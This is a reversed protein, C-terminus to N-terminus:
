GFCSRKTPSSNKTTVAPTAFNKINLTNMTKQAEALMADIKAKSAKANAVDKAALDERSTDQPSNKIRAKSREMAEISKAAKESEARLIEANGKEKKANDLAIAVQNLELSLPIRDWGYHATEVAVQHKTRASTITNCLDTYFSQITAKNAIKEYAAKADTEATTLAARFGEAEAAAEDVRQRANDNIAAIIKTKAEKIGRKAAEVASSAKKMEMAVKAQQLQEIKTSESIMKRDLEAQQASLSAWSEQEARHQRERAELQRRQETLLATRVDLSEKAKTSSENSIKMLQETAQKRAISAALEQDLDAMQADTATETKFIQTIGWRRPDCYSEIRAKTNRVADKLQQVAPDANRFARNAIDCANQATSFIKEGPLDTFIGRGMKFDEKLDYTAVRKAQDMEADNAKAAAAKENNLRTISGEKEKISAEHSNKLTTIEADKLKVATEKEGQLRKIETEKEMRENKLSQIEENSTRSIETVRKQLEEAQKETKILTEKVLLNQEKLKEMEDKLAACQTSAEGKEKEIVAIRDNLTRINAEDNKRTTEMSKVTESLDSVRKTLETTAKGNEERMNKLTKEFFAELEKIKADSAENVAKKFLPGSQMAKAVETGVENDWDFDAVKNTNTTIASM